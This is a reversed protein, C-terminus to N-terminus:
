RTKLNLRLSPDDPDLTDGRTSTLAAMVCRGTLIGV